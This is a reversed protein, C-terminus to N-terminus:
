AFSNIFSFSKCLRETTISSMFYRLNINNYVCNKKHLYHCDQLFGNEFLFHFYIRCSHDSTVNLIRGNLFTVPLVLQLLCLSLCPSFFIKSLLRQSNKINKYQKRCYYHYIQIIWSLMGQHNPNGKLFVHEPWFIQGIQHWYNPITQWCVQLECIWKIIEFMFQFVMKELFKSVHILIDKSTSAM